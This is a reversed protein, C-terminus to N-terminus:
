AAADTWTIDGDSLLTINAAIFEGRDGSIEFQTCHFNASWYGGGDALVVGNLEVRVAIATAQKTWTTYFESDASHLVGAGSVTASYDTKERRVPAILDPNDCDPIRTENTNATLSFSRSANILCPHVYAPTGAGDSVKILLKRGAVVKALAM